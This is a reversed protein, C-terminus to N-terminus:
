NEDIGITLPTDTAAIYTIKLNGDFKTLTYFATFDQLTAGNRNLRSWDVNVFAKTSSSYFLHLKRLISKQWGLDSLRDFNVLPTSQDTVITVEKTIHRAHPIMFIAEYGDVDRNNFKLVLDDFFARIENKTITDEAAQLTGISSVLVILLFLTKKM